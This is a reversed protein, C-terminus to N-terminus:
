GNNSFNPFGATVRAPTADATELSYAIATQIATMVLALAADLV